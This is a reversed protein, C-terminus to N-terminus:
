WKNVNLTTVSINTLHEKDKEIELNITKYM